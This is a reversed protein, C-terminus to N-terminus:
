KFFKYRGDALVPGFYGLKALACMIELFSKQREHLYQLTRWYLYRTRAFATHQRRYPSNSWHRRRWRSSSGVGASSWATSMRRLSPWASCRATWRRFSTPRPSTWGSKQPSSPRPRRQSKKSLRLFSQTNLNVRKQESKSCMYSASKCHLGGGIM